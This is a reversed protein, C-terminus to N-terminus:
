GPFDPMPSGSTKHSTEDPFFEGDMPREVDVPFLSHGMWSCLYAKLRDTEMKELKKFDVTNVRFNGTRDGDSEYSQPLIERTM